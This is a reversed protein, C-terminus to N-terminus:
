DLLEVARMKVMPALHAYRQTMKLDAHGMLERVTNLDAGKMVLQSAFDHRMDHWRFIEIEALKLVSAWAKNCNDLRGGGRPSAFVLDADFTAKNQAKWDAFVERAVRNLPVHNLKGSKATEPRLTMVGNDLDVDEWILSFLAGRRIGTNLSILVMPKLYDAFRVRRLDQILDHRREELWENYGDRECRLREEREDLAAMLRAREGDTLYRIKTSSDVQSLQELRALPNVDLLERKVAWNLVAKLVATQRNLTAARTGGSARGMRWREIEVVGINMAPVDLWGAFAGRLIRLSYEGSKRNMVVWPAYYEDVLDRLTMSAAKEERKKEVPDEGLTVRALFDRAAERAQAVTLVDASGLKYSSRTGDARRYDVYYLKRGSPEIRLMLGEQEDRLTYRSKRSESKQVLSQTLRCRM